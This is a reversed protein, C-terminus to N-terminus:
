KKKSPYQRGARQNIETLAATADLLPLHSAAANSVGPGQERMAIESQPSPMNKRDFAATKEDRARVAQFLKASHLDFQHQAFGEGLALVSRDSYLVGPPAAKVMSDLTKEISPTYAGSLGAVFQADPFRGSMQAVKACFVEAAHRAAKNIALERAAANNAIENVQQTIQQEINM